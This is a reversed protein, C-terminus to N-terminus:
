NFNCHNSRRLIYNEIQKLNVKDLQEQSGWIQLQKKGYDMWVHKLNYYKSLNYLKIGKHHTFINKLKVDDIHSLDIYVYPSMYRKIHNEIKHRVGKNFQSETGWLQLRKNEYDMWIYQLNYDTTLDYLKIGKHGVIKKLKDDSIYSLDIHAYHAIPPNFPAM